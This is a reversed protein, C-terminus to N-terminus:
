ELQNANQTVPRDQVNLASEYGKQEEKRQM